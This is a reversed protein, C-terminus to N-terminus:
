TGRFEANVRDDEDPVIEDSGHRRVRFGDRGGQAMELVSSADLMRGFVNALVIGGARSQRFSWGVPVSIEWAEFAETLYDFSLAIANAWIWVPQGRDEAAEAEAAGPPVPGVYYDAFIRAHVPCDVRHGTLRSIRSAADVREGCHCGPGAKAADIM